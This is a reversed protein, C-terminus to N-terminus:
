DKKDQGADSADEDGVRARVQAKRRAMNAKLATKLRLKRDEARSVKAPDVPGTKRDNRM